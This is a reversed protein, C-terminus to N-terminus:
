INRLQGGWVTSVTWQGESHRHLVELGPAVLHSVGANPFRQLSSCDRLVHERDQEAVSEITGFLTIYEASRGGYAERVPANAV